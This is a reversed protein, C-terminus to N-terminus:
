DPNINCPDEDITFSNKVSPDKTIENNFLLLSNGKLHIFYKQLSLAAISDRPDILVASGCTEATQRDRNERTEKAKGWWDSLTAALTHFFPFSVVVGVPGSLSPGSVVPFFLGQEVPFVNNQDSFFFPKPELICMRMNWGQSVCRATTACVWLWQVHVVVCSTEEDSSQKKGGLKVLRM